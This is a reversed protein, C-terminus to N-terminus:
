CQRIAANNHGLWDKLDHLRKASRDGMLFYIAIPTAVGATAILIFVALAVAQEGATIGTQAIASAASITILGNKPNVAALVAGMGLAKPVKFQDIARMWGPLAAQQDSRPRGAM